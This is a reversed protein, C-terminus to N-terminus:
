FEWLGSFLLLFVSGYFGRAVPQNYFKVLIL